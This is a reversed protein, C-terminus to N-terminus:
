AQPLEEITISGLFTPIVPKCGAWMAALGQKLLSNTGYTLEGTTVLPMFPAWVIPADFPSTGRYAGYIKNMEQNPNRILVIGNFTGFVHPGIADQVTTPEFGPLTSLNAAAKAGAILYNVQGRGANMLILASVDSVKDSLEQKHEYWSVATAPTKNWNVNTDPLQSAILRTIVTQSAESTMEDALDQMM